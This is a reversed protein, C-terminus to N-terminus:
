DIAISDMTKRVESGQFADVSNVEVFDFKSTKTKSDWTSSIKINAAELAKRIKGVQAKYFSIVGINEHDTGANVLERVKHVVASAEEVNFTSGHKSIKELGNCHLLLVRHRSSGDWPWMKSPSILPRRRTETGDILKNNYFLRNPFGSIDPHMRYQTTLMQQAFTLKEYQLAGKESAEIIRGFLSYEEKNAELVPSMITPPLQKQDGILTIQANCFRALPVLCELEAAQTAEDLVVLGIDKSDLSELDKHASGICTACIM